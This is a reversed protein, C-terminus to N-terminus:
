QVQFQTTNFDKGEYCIDLSMPKLDHKAGLVIVVKLKGVLAFIFRSSYILTITSSFVNKVLTQFNGWSLLVGKPKEVVVFAWRQTGYPSINFPKIVIHMFNDGDDIVEM